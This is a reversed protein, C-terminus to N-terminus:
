LTTFTKCMIYWRGDLKLLQFRDEVCAAGYFNDVLIAAQGTCGTIRLDTIVYGCETKTEKMSPKSALDQYFIEPTGVVADNGLFGYMSAKEHFIEKLREVDAQYVADMYQGLLTVIEKKGKYIENM